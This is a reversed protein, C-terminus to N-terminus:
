IYLHVFLTKQIYYIFLLLLVLICIHIYTHVDITCQFTLVFSQNFLCSSFYMNCICICFFSFYLYNIFFYTFSYFLSHVQRPRSFCFNLFFLLHRRYSLWVFPLLFFISYLKCIFFLNYIKCVIKKCCVCACVCM